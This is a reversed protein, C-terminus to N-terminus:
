NIQIVDGISPTRRDNGWKAWVVPYGPDKLIGVQYCRMDTFYILLDPNIGTEEVKEFVPVFRTGGGGKLEFDAPLQQDYSTVVEGQVKTDCAMMHIETCNVERLIEELEMSFASLAETDVSGSTDVAVVLSDMAESYQAPLYMDQAIYRRNFRSYSLGDRATSRFYGRLLEQWSQPPNKIAEVKRAIHGPLNGAKEAQKAAEVVAQNWSEAGAEHAQENMPEMVMGVEEPAPASAQGGGGKGTDQADPGAKAASSGAREEGQREQTGGSEQSPQDSGKGKGPADGGGGGKQENMLSAYVQESAMGEFLPNFLGDEPVSWGSSHLEQNVCFDCAQNWIGFDRGERRLHHHAVLHMVEHCLVFMLKEVSQESVWKPNYFQHQGDVSMAPVSNSPTLELRMMLAGFFPAEVIAKSRALTLNNRSIANVDINM